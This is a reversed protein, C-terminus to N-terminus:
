RNGAHFFKAVSVIGMEVTRYIGHGDLAAKVEVFVEFLAAGLAVALEYGEDGVVYGLSEYVHPKRLRLYGARGERCLRRVAVPQKRAVIVEVLRIGAHYEGICAVASVGGHRRDVQLEQAYVLFLVHLPKHILYGAKGCGKCGEVSHVVGAHTAAYVHGILASVLGYGGIHVGVLGVEGRGCHEPEYEVIGVAHLLRYLEYFLVIHM